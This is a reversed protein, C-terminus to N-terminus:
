DMLIYHEDPVVYQRTMDDYEAYRNQIIADYTSFNNKSNSISSYKKQLQYNYDAESKNLSSQYAALQKSSQLDLESKLRALAENNAREIELQERMKQLEFERQEKAERAAGSLTGVAVGLVKSAENDVYGM